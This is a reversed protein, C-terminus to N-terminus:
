QDEGKEGYLRTLEEGLKAAARKDLSVVGHIGGNAGVIRIMTEGPVYGREVIELKRRAHLDDWDAIVTTDGPM